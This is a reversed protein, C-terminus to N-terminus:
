VIGAKEPERKSFLVDIAEQNGENVAIKKLVVLFVVILKIAELAKNESITTM